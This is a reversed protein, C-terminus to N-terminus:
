WGYKRYIHTYVHLICNIVVFICSQQLNPLVDILKEKKRTVCVENDLDALLILNANITGDKNMSEISNIFEKVKKNRMEAYEVIKIYDYRDKLLPLIINSIFRTDNVGEVFIFLIRYEVTKTWSIKYLCITWVLNM